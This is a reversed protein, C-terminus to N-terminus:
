FTKLANFCGFLKMYNKSGLGLGIDTMDSNYKCFGLTAKTCNNIVLHAM